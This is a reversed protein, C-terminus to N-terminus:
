KNPEFQQAKKVLMAAQFVEEVLRNNEKLLAQQKTNLVGPDGSEDYSWDASQSLPGWALAQPHLNQKQRWDHVKRPPNRKRFYNEKRAENKEGHGPEYGYDRVKTRCAVSYLGGGIKAECNLARAAAKLLLAM